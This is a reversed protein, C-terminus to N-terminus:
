DKANPCRRESGDEYEMVGWACLARKPKGCEACIVRGDGGARKVQEEIERARVTVRQM